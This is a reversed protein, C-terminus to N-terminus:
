DHEKNVLWIAAIWVLAVAVLAAVMVDEVAVTAGTAPASAFLDGECVAITEGELMGIGTEGDREFRVWHAM